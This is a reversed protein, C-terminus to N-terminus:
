DVFRAEDISALTAEGGATRVKLAGFSDIGEAIARRGDRELVVARGPTTDLARWRELLAEQNGALFLPWIEELGGFLARLVAAADVRGPAHDAACAPRGVATEDGPPCSDVNVGIGVAALGQGPLEVLAGAIKRGAVMVDNPWKVGAPVGLSRLAQAIALAAAVGTWEWGQEPVPLTVTAHLAGAASVWTRGRRGRGATQRGAIVVDGPRATGARIRDLAVDQTSPLEDYREIHWTLTM